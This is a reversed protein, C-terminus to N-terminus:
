YFSASSAWSSEFGCSPGLAECRPSPRSRTLRHGGSGFGTELPSQVTRSLSGQRVDEFRLTLPFFSDSLTAERLFSLAAFASSHSAASVSSCLASISSCTTSPEAWSFGSSASQVTTIATALVLLVSFGRGVGAVFLESRLAPTM